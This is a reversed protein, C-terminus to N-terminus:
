AIDDVTVKPGYVRSGDGLDAFPAVTAAARQRLGAVLLDKNFYWTVSDQGNLGRPVPDQPFDLRHMPGAIDGIASGSAIYGTFGWGKIVATGRGKNRVVISRQAPWAAAGGVPYAFASDVEVVPGSESFQRRMERVQSRAYWASGGAAVAACVAIVLAAMAM